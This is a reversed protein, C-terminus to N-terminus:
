SLAGSSNHRKNQLWLVFHLLFLWLNFESDKLLYSLIQNNVNCKQSKCSCWRWMRPFCSRLSHRLRLIFFFFFFFTSWNRRWSRIHAWSQGLFDEELETWRKTLILIPQYKERIKKKKEKRKIKKLNKNIAARHVLSFTYKSRNQIMMHYSAELTRFLLLTGHMNNAPERSRQYLLQLPLSIHLVRIPDKM